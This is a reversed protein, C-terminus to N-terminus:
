FNTYQTQGVLGVQSLLDPDPSEFVVLRKGSTAMGNTFSSGNSASQTAYTGRVDGTTATAPTTADAAVYGTTATIFAQNWYITAFEFHDTTSISKTGSRMPFGYVDAAGCSVATSNITGSPTISLIYKFAKNGTATGANAGTITETMPYGYIDLGDVTYTGSSDNGNSIISVARALNTAPDYVRTVLDNGYSQTGPVGDVVLLGTVTAGTDARIASQGVLVGNASTSILTLAVGASPAQDNVYIAGTPSAATGALLASPIANLVCIDGMGAWGYPGPGITTSGAYATNDLTPMWDRIADYRPDLIGWGHQALSPGADDSYDLANTGSGNARSAPYLILPALATRKTM